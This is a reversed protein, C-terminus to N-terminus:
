LHGVVRGLEVHFVWQDNQGPDDHKPGQPKQEIDHQVTVLVGVAVQANLWATTLEDNSAVTGSVVEQGPGDVAFPDGKQEVRTGSLNRDGGMQLSSQPQCGSVGHSAHGGVACHGDMRGVDIFEDNARENKLVHATM